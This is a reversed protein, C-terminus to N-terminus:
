KGKAKGAVPITIDFVNEGKQVTTKLPTTEPEHYEKPVEIFKLTFKTKGGDKVDPGKYVGSMSVSMYDGRGAETNVAVKVEGLPANTIVYSGDRDVNATASAGNGVAVVLAFQVPEDGYKVIGKLTAGSEPLREGDSCASTLLMLGAALIMGPIRVYSRRM